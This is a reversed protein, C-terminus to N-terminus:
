LKALIGKALEITKARSDARADSRAQEVEEASMQKVNPPNVGAEQAIWASESQVLTIHFIDSGSLVRLQGGDFTSWVAADGLDEVDEQVSSRYSAMLKVADWQKQAADADSPKAPSFGFTLRYTRDGKMWLYSCLLPRDTNQIKVDEPLDFTKRLMEPNLLECLDSRGLKRAEDHIREGVARGGGAELEAQALAKQEDTLGAMPDVAKHAGHHAGHAAETPAAEVGEAAASSDTPADQCGILGFILLAILGFKKM